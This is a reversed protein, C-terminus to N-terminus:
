ECRYKKRQLAISRDTKWHQPRADRHFQQLDTRRDQQQVIIEAYFLEGKHKRRYNISLPLLFGPLKILLKNKPCIEWKELVVRM